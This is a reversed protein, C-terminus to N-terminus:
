EAYKDPLRNYNLYKKLELKTIELENCFEIIEDDLFKYPNDYEIEEEPAPLAPETDKMQINNMKAELEPIDELSKNIKRLREAM